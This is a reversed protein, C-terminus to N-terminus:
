HLLQPKYLLREVPENVAVPWVAATGTALGGHLMWLVCRKQTLSYSTNLSLEAWLRM